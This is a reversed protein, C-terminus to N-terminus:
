DSILRLLRDIFLPRPINLLISKPKKCRYIKKFIMVDYFKKYLSVSKIHNIMKIKVFFNFIKKSFKNGFIEADLNNNVVPPLEIIRVKSFNKILEYRLMKKAFEYRSLIFKEPSINLQNRLKEITDIYVITTNVNSITKIFKLPYLINAYYYKDYNYWQSNYDYGCIFIIKIQGFNKLYSLNIKKRWSYINIKYNPYLKKIIKTFKDSKGLVIIKNM